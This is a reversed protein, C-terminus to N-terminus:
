TAAPPAKLLEPNPCENTWSSIWAHLPKLTAYDVIVRLCSGHENVYDLVCSYEEHSCQETETYGNSRFIDMADGPMFRALARPKWGHRLLATRASALAQNGSLPVDAAASAAAFLAAGALIIFSTSRTM